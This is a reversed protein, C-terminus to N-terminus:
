ASSPTTPPPSPCTHLQGALTGAEARPGQWWPQGPEGRDGALLEGAADELAAPLPQRQTDPETGPLVGALRVRASRLASLTGPERAVATSIAELVERRRTVPLAERLLLRLVRHIRLRTEPDSLLMRTADAKTATDAPSAWTTLDDPGLLQGLNAVLVDHLQAVAEDLPPSDGPPVHSWGIADRRVFAGALRIEFEDPSLAADAVIRIGPVRVGYDREIRDRMGPLLTTMLAWHEGADPPILDAGLALVVTNTLPFIASSEVDSRRTRFALDLSMAALITQVGAQAAKSLEPDDRMASLADTQAWFAAPSGAFIGALAEPADADDGGADDQPGQREPAGPLAFAAEFGDRAVGPDGSAASAMAVRCLLGRRLAAEGPAHETVQSALWAYSRLASGLDGSRATEDAEACMAMTVGAFAIAAEPIDDRALEVYHGAADQWRHQAAALRGLAARAAQRRAPTEANLAWRMEVEDTVSPDLLIERRERLLALVGDIVTGVQDAHPRGAVRQLLQPLEVDRLLGLVAADHAGVASRLLAEGKRVDGRAPDGRELLLQGLDSTADPYQVEDGSDQLLELYLREATDYEGMRYAAWALFDRPLLVAEERHAWVWRIDEMVDAERFLSKNVTARFYRLTPEDKGQQASLLELAQQGERAVLLLYLRLVFGSDSDPAIRAAAQRAEDIRELATLAATRQEEAKLESPDETLAREAAALATKANGVSNHAMALLTWAFAYTGDLVLAHEALMAAQWWTSRPVPRERDVIAMALTGYAWAEDRGPPRIRGGAQWRQISETLLDRDPSGDEHYALRRMTEALAWHVVPIGPGLRCAKQLYARAATDETLPQLRQAAEFYAMAAQDGRGLRELLRARYVLARREPFEGRGKIGLRLAIDIADLAMQAREASVEPDPMDASGGTGDLMVALRWYLNGSVPARLRALGQGDAGRVARDYQEQATFWTGRQEEVLGLGVYPAPNAPFLKAAQEFRTTAEALDGEALACEGLAVHLVAREPDKEQRELAGELRTRVSSREAAIPMLVRALLLEISAQSVTPLHKGWPGDVLLRLLPAAAEWREERLAQTGTRGHRVLLEDAPMAYGPSVLRACVDLREELLAEAFVSVWEASRGGPSPAETILRQRQRWWVPGFREADARTVERRDLEESAAQLIKLLESLGTELRLLDQRLTAYEADGALTRLLRHAAAAMERSFGARDVQSRAASVVGTVDAQENGGGSAVQSTM